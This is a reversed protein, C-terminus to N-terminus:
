SENQGGNSEFLRNSHLPNFIPPKEKAGIYELMERNFEDRIHKPFKINEQLAGANMKYALHDSESEIAKEVLEHIARKEKDGISKFFTPTSLLLKWTLNIGGDLMRWRWYLFSSNIFAYLYDFCDQNKAFLVHKGTRSLCRKSAVCYYRCTTPVHLAFQNPKSQILDAIKETKANEWKELVQELQSQCKKYEKDGDTVVQYNAGIFRELTENDLLRERESSNFRLLPSLRYGSRNTENNTVTISARVSNAHNSNFIGHKKGRFINGPVNDFSVIFGSHQNLVKRLSYFKSAGCFSYPSIIVSSKSQKLIKEFFAAYLEKSDDIVASEAWSDSKSAIKAYPPNSIVKCDNPLSLNSSLFDGEVVKISELLDKGYLLAISHKCIDLATADLDYLYLNGKKILKRADDKGILELYSLVLNGTGCGVDVVNEGSLPRLWRAMVGSVDSPTYYKGSEKKKEKDAEALGAEYLNGFDKIGIESYYPDDKLKAELIKRWTLELGYKKVDVKYEDISYRSCAM